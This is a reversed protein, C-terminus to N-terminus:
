TRRVHLLPLLTAALPLLGDYSKTSSALLGSALINYISELMSAGQQFSLLFSISTLVWRTIGFERTGGLVFFIFIFRLIGLPGGNEDVRLGRSIPRFFFFLIREVM